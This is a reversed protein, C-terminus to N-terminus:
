FLPYTFEILDQHLTPAPFSFYKPILNYTATPILLTLTKYYHNLYFKKM